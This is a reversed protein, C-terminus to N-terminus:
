WMILIFQVHACVHMQICAVGNPLVGKRGNGELCKVDLYPVSPSGKDESAQVSVPPNAEPLIFDRLGPGAPLTSSCKTVNFTSSIRRLTRQVRSRRISLFVNRAFCLSFTMASKLHFTTCTACCSKQGQLRLFDRSVPHAHAHARVHM